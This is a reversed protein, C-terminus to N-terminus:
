VDMISYDDNNEIFDDSAPMADNADSFGGLDDVTLGRDHIDAVEGYDLEGNENLDSAAFDFTLDGDVDVVIVEQNDINLGGINAGTEYDHVVGLVEITPQEDVVIPDIDEHPAYTTDHVSNDYVDPHETVVEVVEIHNVPHHHHHHVEIPQVTATNGTTANVHNWSFHDNFEVREEVTMNNWEDATFTGYVSGHWEFAGGPGVEARAIAFAEDFSMDNDVGSAVSIDDLAWVPTEKPADQDEVSNDIIPPVAQTANADQFIEGIVVAGAAGLAMGGFGAAMMGKKNVSTKQNNVNTGKNLNSDNLITTDM